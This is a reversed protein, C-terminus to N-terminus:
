PEAKPPFFSSTAVCVALVPCSRAATELVSRLESATIDNIAPQSNAVLVVEAGGRLLERALPLMGLM